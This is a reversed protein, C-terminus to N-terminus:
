ALGALSRCASIFAAHGVPIPVGNERQKAIWAGFDATSGMEAEATRKLDAQQDVTLSAWLAPAMGSQAYMEYQEADNALQAVQEVRDVTDKKTSM